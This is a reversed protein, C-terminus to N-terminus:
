QKFIYTWSTGTTTFPLNSRYVKYNIGSWNTPLGTSTITTPVKTFASLQEFNNQDLISTLDGCTAPFAFYYYQLTSSNLSTTTSSSCSKVTKTLSYLTGDEIMTANGFGSLYPYVGTLTVTSSQITTQNGNNGVIQYSKFTKVLSDATGSIPYFTVSTTKNGGGTWSYKISSYPTLQSITGSIFSTESNASITHSLTVTNNTGVQYVGSSSLSITSPVFPYFTATIWDKVTLNTGPNFGVTPIATIPGGALAQGGITADSIKIEGKTADWVLVKETGLSIRPAKVYLLDFKGINVERSTTTQANSILIFTLFFLLLIYKMNLLLIHNHM